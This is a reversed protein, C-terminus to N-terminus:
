GGFLLMLLLGSYTWVSTEPPTVTRQVVIRYQPSVIQQSVTRGRGGVRRRRRVPEVGDGDVIVHHDVPSAPSAADANAKEDAEQNVDCGRHEDKNGDVGSVIDSVVSQELLEQSLGTLPTNIAVCSL